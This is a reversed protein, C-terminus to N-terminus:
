HHEYKCTQSQGFPCNYIIYWPHPKAMKVRESICRRGELHRWANSTKAKYPSLCIGAGLPHNSPAKAVHEAAAPNFFRYFVLSVLSRLTSIKSLYFRTCSQRLKSLWFSITGSAWPQQFRFLPYEWLKEPIEQSSESARLRGYSKPEVEASAIALLWELRRGRWRWWFSFRKVEADVRFTRADDRGSSSFSESVFEQWNRGSRDSSKCCSKVAPCPSSQSVQQRRIDLCTEECQVLRSLLHWALKLAQGLGNVPEICPM